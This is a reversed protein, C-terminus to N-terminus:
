SERAVILNLRDGPAGRNKVVPSRLVMVLAVEDVREILTLNGAAIQAPASVVVRVTVQAVEVKRQAIAAPFPVPYTVEAIPDPGLECVADTGEEGSVDGYAHLALDIYSGGQRVEVHGRHRDLEQARVV